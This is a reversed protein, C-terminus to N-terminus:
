KICRVGYRDAKYYWTERGDVFYFPYAAHKNDKVEDRTWYSVSIDFGSLDSAKNNKLWLDSFIKRTPLKADLKKCYDMAEQWKMRKPAEDLWITQAFSLNSSLILALLFKSLNFMNLYVMKM